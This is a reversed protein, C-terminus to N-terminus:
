VQGFYPACADESLFAGQGSQLSPVSGKIIYLKFM